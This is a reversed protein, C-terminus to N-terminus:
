KLVQPNSYARVTPPRHHMAAQYRPLLSEPVHIERLHRLEQHARSWDLVVIGRCGRRMWDLPTSFLSLEGTARARELAPEGLAFVEGFLSTLENTRPQWLVVDEEGELLAIFRKGAPDIVFLGKEDVRGRVVWPDLELVIRSSVGAATLWRYQHLDIRRPVATEAEPNSPEPRLPISFPSSNNHCVLDTFPEGTRVAPGEEEASM